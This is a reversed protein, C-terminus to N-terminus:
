FSNAMGAKTITQPTPTAQIVDKIEDLLDSVQGFMPHYSFFSYSSKQKLISSSNNIECNILSHIEELTMNATVIMWDSLLTQIEKIQPTQSSYSSAKTCIEKLRKQIDSQQTSIDNDMEASPKVADIKSETAVELNTTISHYHALIPESLDNALNTLTSDTSVLNETLKLKRKILATAEHIFYRGNVTRATIAVIEQATQSVINYAQGDFNVTGMGTFNIWSAKIDKKLNFLNEFEAFMANTNDISLYPQLAPNTVPTNDIKIDISFNHKTTNGFVKSM